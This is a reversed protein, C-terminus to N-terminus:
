HRRINDLIEQICVIFDPLAMIEREQFPVNLTLVIGLPVGLLPAAVTSHNMRGSVEALTEEPSRSVLPFPRLRDFCPRSLFRVIVVFVVLANVVLLAQMVSLQHPLVCLTNPTILSNTLSPVGVNCAFVIRM